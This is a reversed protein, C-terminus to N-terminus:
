PRDGRFRETPVGLADALKCITSWAPDREDREIRAVNVASLGATKALRYVTWGAASRLATVRQGLTTATTM